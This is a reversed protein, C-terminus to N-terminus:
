HTKAIFDTCALNSLVFDIEALMIRKTAQEDSIGFTKERITDPLHSFQQRIEQFVNPIRSEVHSVPCFKAVELELELEAKEVEARLKRLRMQHANGVQSMSKTERNMMWSHFAATNILWRRSKNGREVCPAGEDIWSLFTNATIGFIKCLESQNVLKGIQNAM